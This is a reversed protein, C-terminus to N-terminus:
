AANGPLHPTPRNSCNPETWDSVSPPSETWALVTRQLHLVLRLLTHRDTLRDTQWSRSGQLPPQVRQVLRSATKSTSELVMNWIPNPIWSVLRSYPLKSPSLHGAWSTGPWTRSDSPCYVWNLEFRSMCCPGTGIRHPHPTSSPPACQRWRAFVISSDMHPAIRGLTLNSIITIDYITNRTYGNNGFQALEYQSIQTCHEPINWSTTSIEAYWLKKVTKEL